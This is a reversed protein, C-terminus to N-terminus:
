AAVAKRKFRARWGPNAAHLLMLAAIGAGFASPLYMVPWLAANDVV